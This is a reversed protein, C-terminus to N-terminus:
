FPMVQPMGRMHLVSLSTEALFALPGQQDPGFGSCLSFGVYESHINVSHFKSQEGYAYELVNGGGQASNAVVLVQLTHPTLMELYM